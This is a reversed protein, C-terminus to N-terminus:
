RANFILELAQQEDSFEATHCQLSYVMQSVHSDLGIAKLSEAPLAGFKGLVDLNNEVILRINSEKALHADVQERVAETAVGAEDMMNLQATWSSRGEQLEDLMSTVHGMREM